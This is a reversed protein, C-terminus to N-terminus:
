QTLVEARKSPVVMSGLEAHLPGSSRASGGCSRASAKRAMNRLCKPSRGPTAPNRVAVFILFSLRTAFRAPNHM